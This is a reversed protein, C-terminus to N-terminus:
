HFTAIDHGVGNAYKTYLNDREQSGGSEDARWAQSRCDVKETLYVHQKHIMNFIQPSLIPSCRSTFVLQANMPNQSIDKFLNIIKLSLQPPLDNDFEDLILMGGIKLRLMIAALIKYASQITSSELSMPLPYPRGKNHHICLVIFNSAINDATAPLTSKEISIDDIGLDYQCLLHKVYDFLDSNEAFMATAQNLDYLENNGGVSAINSNNLSFLFGLLSVLNHKNPKPNIGQSTEIRYVFSILSCNQPTQELIADSTPLTNTNRQIVYHKKEPNFTRTFVVSTGKSTQSKLSEFVVRHQNFEVLYRYELDTQEDESSSNSSQSVAPTTAKNTKPFCFAVEIQTNQDNGAFHAFCPIQAGQNLAKYSDSIFWSIFAMAKVLNSKGSADAGFVGLVKAVKTSNNLPYDFACDTVQENVTFDVTCDDLYSHFNKVRFWKIM